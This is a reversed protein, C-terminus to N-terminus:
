LQMTNKVKFKWCNILADLSKGFSEYDNLDPRLELLGLLMRFM